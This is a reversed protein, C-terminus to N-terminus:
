RAGEAVAKAVAKARKVLEGRGSEMERMAKGAEKLPVFLAALDPSADTAQKIALPLGNHFVTGRQLPIPRRLAPGVYMLALPTAAKERKEPAPTSEEMVPPDPAQPEIKKSM